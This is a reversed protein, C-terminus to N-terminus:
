GIHEALELMMGLQLLALINGESDKFWAAKDPGITAVNALTDIGPMNHEEFTIDKSELRKVQEGINEVEFAAVIHEAKSPRGRYLFIATGGGCDYMAGSRSTSLLKLGLKEEYFIRAREMDVVPITPSIHHSFAM